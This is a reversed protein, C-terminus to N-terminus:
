FRGSQMLCSPHSLRNLHLWWESHGVPTKEQSGTFQRRNVHWISCTSSLLRLLLGNVISLPFSGIPSPHFIIAKFYHTQRESQRPTSKHHATDISLKVPDLIVLSVFSSIDPLSNGPWTLLSPLGVRFTPLIM